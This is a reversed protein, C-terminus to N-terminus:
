VIPLLADQNPYPELVGFDVMRRVLSAEIRVGHEEAIATLADETLRGDFHHLLSALQEPMLLPDYPSYAEIRYGSREVGVLRFSGVRLREPIAESTLHAHADRLLGALIRVRPHCIQEVQQWSLPEVIQACTRYFDMEHGAWHGWLKHYHPWDIDGGLESVEPSAGCDSEVEASGTKLEALCWLSLDQEVHRLLKDALRWFRFGVAGRVHKCYWTACVAPRHLWIGCDGTAALFHCRLQPARGFVGPTNRYMLSFIAGPGAWSPTIAVRRAIRQELEHRANALLPDSDSLIRGAVFNALQPQYACCKTGPHFYTVGQTDAGRDLMACDDCTAQTEAPISGGAVTGLWRAYLSPLTAELIM